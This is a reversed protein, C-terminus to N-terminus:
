SFDSMAPSNASQQLISEKASTKHTEYDPMEEAAGSLALWDLCEDIGWLGERSSIMNTRDLSQKQIVFNLAEDVRNQMFGLEILTRRLTWLRISLDDLSVGNRQQSNDDASGFSAAEVSEYILQLLGEPLWRGTNLPTAQSRVLRRETRLRAAYRSAEKKCKEGHKEVLLQLESEVLQRDLEDPSLERLEKEREQYEIPKQLRAEILSTAITEEPEDVSLTDDLVKSKSVTSTTAFGRAPNSAPKKKKRNPAM